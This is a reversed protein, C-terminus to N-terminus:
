AKPRCFRLSGLLLAPSQVRSIREVLGADMCWGSRQSAAIGPNRYLTRLLYECVHRNVKGSHTNPPLDEHLNPQYTTPYVPQYNNPPQSTSTTIAPSPSLHTRLDTRSDCHIARHLLLEQCILM